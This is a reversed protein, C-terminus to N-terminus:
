STVSTCRSDARAGCTLGATQAAARAKSDRTTALTSLAKASRTQLRTARLLTRMQDNFKQELRQLDGVTRTQHSAATQIQTKIDAMQVDMSFKFDNFGTLLKDLSQNSSEGAQEVSFMSPGTKTAQTRWGASTDTAGCRTAM